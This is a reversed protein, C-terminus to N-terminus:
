TYTVDGNQNNTEFLIEEGVCFESDECVLNGEEVICVEEIDFTYPTPNGSIQIDYSCVSGFCGDIFFYYIQGPILVDSDFTVPNLNCTPNCFVSETFTCDTYLGMQVGDDGGTTSGTCGTPTVTVSYDGEDAAFAFWSINHPAGGEPCLPNPQNGPSNDSPM